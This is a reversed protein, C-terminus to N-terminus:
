KKDKRKRANEARQNANKREPNEKNWKRATAANKEKFKPDDKKKDYAEKEKAKIKPDVERATRRDFSRCQSCKSRGPLADNGCLCKAM